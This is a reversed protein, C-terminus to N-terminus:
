DSSNLSVPAMERDADQAALTSSRGEVMGHGPSLRTM